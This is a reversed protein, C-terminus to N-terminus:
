LHAGRFGAPDELAAGSACLPCSLPTWIDNPIAALTELPISKLAAFDFAAAGLVLLSGIAVVSAGNAELHSYTGRVASGANTVDNIIAIRKGPVLARLQDPLRYGAPFLGDASPQAHRETYLFKKGLEEAVILAVFAGEVLPGCIYDLDLTALREALARALPRIREPQLCLLELDLWLNGHHGSELLFHGRQASLLEFIQDQM